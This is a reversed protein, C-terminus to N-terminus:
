GSFYIYFMPTVACLMAVNLKIVCCLPPMHSHCKAYVVSRRDVSGNHQTDCKKNTMSFTMTILTMVGM